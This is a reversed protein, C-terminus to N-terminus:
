DELPKKATEKAAFIAVLTVALAAAVYWSVALTNGFRQYLYAMLLPAFGGGVIGAFTYALSAGTYRVPTGFQEAVFSAQPGFMMAHLLLGAIAALVIVTASGSDLLPFYVFAFLVALVAGFGYVIRRGLVDSLLGFLPVCIANFVAAILVARLAFDRSLHLVATLYTLTFVVILAYHVDSGVRSGAAILLRRWHHRLVERVPAEAKRNSLELEKFMPTEEVGARVWLGFVVLVLSLLFPLRWGWALFDPDSLSATLTAIAATALLTGGSPGVQTWSANLGRRGPRGHEMSLLVAGAWEGGLAVGQVFRLAVLLLPSLVGAAAYTPLLGVAATTVGMLVLTIVLVARRGLKDGLYGFVVGGLPRSIYGVAYTSFALLIGALPDVAPFFLQNFILAAMTNYITFDYWELTTGVMSAAALRARRANPKALATAAIAPASM